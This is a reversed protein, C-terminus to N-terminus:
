GNLQPLLWLLESSRHLRYRYSNSGSRAKLSGCGLRSRLQVLMPKDALGVTIELSVYGQQSVGLHGDGDVLGALWQCFDLPLPPREAAVPHFRTASGM